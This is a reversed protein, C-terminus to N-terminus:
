FWRTQELWVSGGFIDMDLKQEFIKDPVVISKKVIKAVKNVNFFAKERLYKVSCFLKGIQRSV